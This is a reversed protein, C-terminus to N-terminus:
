RATLSGGHGRKRGRKRSPKAMKRGLAGARLEFANRLLKQAERMIIAHDQDISQGEHSGNSVEPASATAGSPFQFASTDDEGDGGDERPQIQKRNLAEAATKM